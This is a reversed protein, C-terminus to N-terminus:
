IVRKGLKASARKCNLVVDTPKSFCRSAIASMRRRKTLKIGAQTRDLSANVTSGPCTRLLMWLNYWIYSTKGAHLLCRGIWLTETFLRLWLSSSHRFTSLRPNCYLSLAFLIIAGCALNQRNRNHPHTLNDRVLHHISQFRPRIEANKHAWTYFTTLKEFVISLTLIILRQCCVFKGGPRMLIFVVWEPTTFSAFDVM